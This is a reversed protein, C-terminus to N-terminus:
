FKLIKSNNNQKQISLLAFTSRKKNNPKQQERPKSKTPIQRLLIIEEKYIPLPVNGHARVLAHSHESQKSRNKFSSTRIYSPEKRSIKKLLYNEILPACQWTGTCIFPFYLGNKQNAYPCM